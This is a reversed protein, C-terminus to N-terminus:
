AGGLFFSTVANTVPKKYKKQNQPKSSSKYVSQAYVTEPIRQKGKRVAECVRNSFGSPQTHIAATNSRLGAYLGSATTYMEDIKIHRLFLNETKLTSFTGNRNGPM